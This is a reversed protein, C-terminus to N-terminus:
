FAIICYVSRSGTLLSHRLWPLKRRFRLPTLPDISLRASLKVFFTSIGSASVLSVNNVPLLPGLEKEVTALQRGEM